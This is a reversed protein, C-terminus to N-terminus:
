CHGPMNTLNFFFSASSESLAGFRTTHFRPEVTTPMKKSEPHCLNNFDRLRAEPFSFFKYVAVQIASIQAVAKGTYSTVVAAMGQLACAFVQQCKGALAAMKARGAVLLADHLKRLPETHIDELFYGVPM